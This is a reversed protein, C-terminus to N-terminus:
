GIKEFVDTGHKCIPCIFDPPLEEGEYVYGCVKCIWGKKPSDKPKKPAPKIHNQYYDYTVSPITSLEFAETIEAIFMTHTGCDIRNTIEGAIVANAHRDAYLTGNFARKVFGAGDFKDVAKGSQYGFREVLGFPVDEELVSLTFENQVMLMDHTTNMKNVTFAIQKPTDTIMMAANIICANDKPYKDSPKASLLYLGYSLKFLAANQIEGPNYVPVTKVKIGSAITDAIEGLRELDAPKVSSRISLFKEALTINKCKLMAARILNGAAPAWSGNEIVTVNRNQFNHATLDNVVAEMTVFIGANYTSSAFVIHSYKFCAAVINSAPIVSTDFMETKIGKERLKTSLIEAANETHGYITAYIICVGNVEPTYSSWKDYKDLYYAINRRWVFGHLPCIYKIDLTAAKGLLTQVQPGYKGVINTYYRRAEDLYDRDFDVEDAFLAGNIAGFTGFADASFLVGDTEDYTVMVEPWHVMPAFVFKFTHMGTCFTDFENVVMVHEDIANLTFFNKIMTLIQKNCIITVDPYRRLLESLTASHDPEMHHVVVYDLTRGNLVFEINEFFQESVTADVTDFLTTKNDLCLYSNFSVGNPVSYVGEFMALRRNNAGVWVIDNTVKRTSHM